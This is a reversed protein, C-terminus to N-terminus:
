KWFGEVQIAILHKVPFESAVPSIVVYEGAVKTTNKSKNALWLIGENSQATAIECPVKKFDIPYKGIDIEDSQYFGTAELPVSLTITAEKICWCKALGSEWKQYTWEGSNGTEVVSDAGGGISPLDAWYHEGDGIKLQHKEKDYGPQGAALKIKTEKWSKTTGRRFQIM